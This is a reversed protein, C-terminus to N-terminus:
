RMAPLGRSSQAIILSGWSDIQTVKFTAKSSTRWLIKYQGESITKFPSNSCGALPRGFQYM